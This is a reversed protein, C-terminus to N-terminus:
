LVGEEFWKKLREKRQESTERWEDSRTFCQAKGWTRVCPRRRALEENDPPGFQLALDVEWVGFEGDYHAFAQQFRTYGYFTIKTWHPNMFTPKEEWEITEGFPVEIHNHLVGANGCQKMVGEITNRVYKHLDEEKRTFPKTSMRKM